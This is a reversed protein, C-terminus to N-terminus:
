ATNRAGAVAMSCARLSSSAGGPPRARSAHRPIMEGGGGDRTWNLSASSKERGTKRHTPGGRRSPRARTTACLLPRRVEQTDRRRGALYEAVPRWLPWHISKSAGGARVIDNQQSPCNTAREMTPRGMAAARAFGKFATPAGVHRGAV